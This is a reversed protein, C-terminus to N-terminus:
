HRTQALIHRLIAMLDAVVDYLVTVSAWMKSNCKEPVLKVGHDHRLVFIMRIAGIQFQGHDDM